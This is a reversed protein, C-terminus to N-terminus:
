GLDGRGIPDARTARRSQPEFARAFWRTSTAWVRRYVPSASCARVASKQVGFEEGWRRPSRPAAPTPHLPIGRLPPRHRTRTNEFSRGRPRIHSAPPFRLNPSARRGNRRHQRPDQDQGPTATVALLLRLRRSYREGLARRGPRLGRRGRRRQPRQRRSIGGPAPRTRSRDCTGRGAGRGAGQGPGRGTTRRSRAAPDAPNRRTTRGTTGLTPRRATRGTTRLPATRTTTASARGRDAGFVDVAKAYTPGVRCSTIRRTPRASAPGDSRAQASGSKLLASSVDGPLGHAFEAHLYRRVRFEVDTDLVPFREIVLDRRRSAAWVGRPRRTGPFARAGSTHFRAPAPLGREDDVGPGNPVGDVAEGIIILRSSVEDGTAPQQAM